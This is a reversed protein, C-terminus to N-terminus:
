GPAGALAAASAVGSDTNRGALEDRTQEGLRSLLITVREHDSAREIIGCLNDLVGAIVGVRDGAQLEDVQNGRDLGHLREIFGSPVPAPPGSGFTVLRIAITGDISRWREPDTSLDFLYSPSLPRSVKLRKHGSRRPKLGTPCFAESNQRALHALALQERGPQAQVVCWRNSLSPGARAGM